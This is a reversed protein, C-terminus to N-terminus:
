GGTSLWGMPVVFRRVQDLIQDCPDARDWQWLHEPLVTECHTDRLFGFLGKQFEGKNVDIADFITQFSM